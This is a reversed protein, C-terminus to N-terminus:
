SSAKPKVLDTVDIEDDFNFHPIGLANTANKVLERQLNNMVFSTKSSPADKAIRRASVPRQQPEVAVIKQQPAKGGFKKLYELVDQKMVRGDKGTGTIDLVNLNNEELLGRVSPLIHSKVYERKPNTTIATQQTPEPTQKTPEQTQKASAKTTKSSSKKSAPKSDVEIDVLVQGVACAEEEQFYRKHIIGDYASPIQTFLKDTAVDCLIDM